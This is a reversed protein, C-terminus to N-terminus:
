VAHGTSLQREYSACSVAIRRTADRECAPAGGICLHGYNRNPVPQTLARDALVDARVRPTTCRLRPPLPEGQRSRDNGQGHIPHESM